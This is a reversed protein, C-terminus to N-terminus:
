KWDTRKDYNNIRQKSIIFELYSKMDDIGDLKEIDNITEQYVANSKYIELRKEEENWRRWKVDIM